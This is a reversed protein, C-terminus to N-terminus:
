GIAAITYCSIASYNKLAAQESVSFFAFVFYKCLYIGINLNSRFACSSNSASHKVRFRHIERAWSISHADISTTTTIKNNQQKYNNKNTILCLSHELYSHCGLETGLSSPSQPPSKSARWFTCPSSFLLSGLPCWSSCLQHTPGTHNDEPNRNDHTVTTMPLPQWPYRNDHTITTM